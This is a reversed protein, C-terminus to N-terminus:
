RLGETFSLDIRGPALPVGLLADRDHREDILGAVSGDEAEFWRCRGRRFSTRAELAARETRVEGEWRLAFRRDGILASEGELEAPAVERAQLVADELQLLARDEGGLEPEATVRQFTLRDTRGILVAVVRCDDGDLVFRDGPELWPMPAV